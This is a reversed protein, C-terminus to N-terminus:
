KKEIKKEDQCKKKSISKISKKWSISCVTDVEVNMLIFFKKTSQLSNAQFSLFSFITSPNLLVKNKFKWAFFHRSFLNVIRNITLTSFPKSWNKSRWCFFYSKWAINKSFMINAVNQCGGKTVLTRLKCGVFWRLLCCCGKDLRKWGNMKTLLIATFNVYNCM